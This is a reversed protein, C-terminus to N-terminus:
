AVVVHSTFLWGVGVVILGLWVLATMGMVCSMGRAIAVQTRHNLVQADYAKREAPETVAFEDGLWGCSCSPQSFTEGWFTNTSTTVKHKMAEGM